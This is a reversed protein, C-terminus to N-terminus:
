NNSRRELFKKKTKKKPSVDPHRNIFTETGGEVLVKYTKKVTSSIKFKVTLPKGNKKHPVHTIVPVFCIPM